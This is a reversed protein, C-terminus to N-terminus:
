KISFVRCTTDKMFSEHLDPFEIKFNHQDFIQRSQSKWTILTYDEFKLRSHERMYNMVKLKIAEEKAVLQKKLDELRKLDSVLTAIEPTAEITQDSSDPYLQKAQDLTEATTAAKIIKVTAAKTKIAKVVKTAKSETATKAVKVDNHKIAKAM